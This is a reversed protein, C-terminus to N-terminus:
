YYTKINHKLALILALTDTEFHFVLKRNTLHKLSHNLNFEVHLM